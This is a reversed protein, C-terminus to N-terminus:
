LLAKRTTDPMPAALGASFQLQECAGGDLVLAGVHQDFLRTFRRAWRTRKRKLNPLGISRAREVAQGAEDLRREAFYARGLALWALPDSRGPETEITTTLLERARQPLKMKLYLNAQRVQHRVRRADDEANAVGPLAAGLFAVAAVIRLILSAM